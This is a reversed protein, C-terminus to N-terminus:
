VTVAPETHKLCKGFLSTLRVDLYICKLHLDEGGLRLILEASVTLFRTFYVRCRIQLCKSGSHCFLKLLQYFVPFDPEALQSM